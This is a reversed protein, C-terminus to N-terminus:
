GLSTAVLRKLWAMFVRTRANGRLDAHTVGWLERSPGVLRPLLPVLRPEHAVAFLPLLSIGHGEACAQVQAVANSARVVYRPEPLLKRLWQTQPLEDFSASFGVFEHTRLAAVHRPAAHRELYAQSAFLGWRLVGLRQALLAPQKPKGLRVAIDAERRSLDLVRTDARLDLTLKPHERRFEALAPLLVYHVFGETATVRLSGELRADSAAVTREAELAEAEIREAHGLLKRGAASALVREPTREFLKTGLAQELASLRRGITTPDVGLKQAARKHSGLREVALFVRLDDWQMPQMIAAVLQLTVSQQLLARPQV